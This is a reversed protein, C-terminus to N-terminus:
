RTVSVNDARGPRGAWGADRGDRGDRGDARGARGVTGGTGVSSMWWVHRGAGYRKELVDNRNPHDATRPTGWGGSEAAVGVPVILM